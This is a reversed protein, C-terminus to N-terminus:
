SGAVSAGVRFFCADVQLLEGAKWDTFGSELFQLVFGKKRLREVMPLLLIEGEYLPEFLSLELQLGAIKDLVPEAGDLIQPEFGQADIKLFVRDGPRVFRDWVGAITEVPVELDEAWGISPAAQRHRDLMPLFSSSEDHSAVHMVARGAKAGLAMNQMEWVPFKSALPRLREFAKPLPEFSVIRGTYGAQRIDCGFQGINAGVDLMLSVGYRDWMRCKQAIPAMNDARGVVKLDGLRALRSLVARYLRSATM